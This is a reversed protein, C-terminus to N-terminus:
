DCGAVKASADRPEFRGCWADCPVIPFAALNPILGFPRGDIKPPDCRCQGGGRVENGSFTIMNPVEAPPNFQFFRCRDCLRM